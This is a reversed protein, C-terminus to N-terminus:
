VVNGDSWIPVGDGNATVGWEEKKRAVPLWRGEKDKSKGNKTYISDYM